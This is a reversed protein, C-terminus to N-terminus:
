DAPIDFHIPIAKVMGSTEIYERNIELIYQAEPFNGHNRSSIPQTLIGIVVPKEDLINGKEESTFQAQSVTFALVISALLASNLM